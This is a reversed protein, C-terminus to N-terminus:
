GNERNAPLATSRQGALTSIPAGQLHPGSTHLHCYTTTGSAATFAPPDQEACVDMAYPCRTRFRCGSPVDLPSPVDGTLVIRRRARQRAPNPLPIASLLSATYPHNPREYVENSPGEEVIRGLYMVSIRDSMHRVVALDHAIFLYSIRLRDQLDHLLNIIQAQTSVDLSSVPEDMVLIAPEVALARAIAARQLQGGSLQRPYRRAHAEPLGVLTLLEAIRESRQRRDLDFHTVLPEALGSGVTALPDFSSFPDQFVMQADRRMRRLGSRSARALDHGNLWVTGESPEILRLGLRAVTSKGSGSEGVLGITQGPEVRLDVGDVAKLLRRSRGFRGGSNVPFFKKVGRLELVPQIDPTPSDSPLVTDSVLTM